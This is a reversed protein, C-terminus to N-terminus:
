LITRKGLPDHSPSTRRLDTHRDTKIENFIHTMSLSSAKHMVHIFDKSYTRSRRQVMNIPNGKYGLRQSLYAQTSMLMHHTLQM